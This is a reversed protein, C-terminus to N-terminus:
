LQNAYSLIKQEADKSLWKVGIPIFALNIQLNFTKLLNQIKVADKETCLAFNINNQKMYDIWQLLDQKSFNFHDSYSYHHKVLYKQEIDAKFQHNNALGSILIVPNGPIPVEGNMAIPSQYEYKSKLPHPVQKFQLKSAQNVKTYIGFDALAAFSMSERLRGMPMIFFNSKPASDNILVTYLNAELKLHQFADDLIVLNISADLKQIAKIGEIRDECVFVRQDPLQNKIILPEDGVESPLSTPKVEFFGKTKRGYGRSLIAINKKDALIKAIAITHPTKGTGGVEINGIVWSPIVSKQRLKFLKYFWRRTRTILDFIIAFPFLFLQYWKM